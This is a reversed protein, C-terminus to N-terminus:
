SEIKEAVVTEGSGTVGWFGLKQMDISITKRCNEEQWCAQRVSGDALLTLAQSPKRMLVAEIVMKAAYACGTTHGSGYEVNVEDTLM